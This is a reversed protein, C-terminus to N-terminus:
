REQEEPHDNEIITAEHPMGFQRLINAYNQRYPQIEDGKYRRRAAEYARQAHRVADLKKGFNAEARSLDFYAVEDGEWTFATAERALKLAEGFRASNYHAYSLVHLATGYQVQIEPNSPDLRFALRAYEVARLKFTHGDQRSAFDSMQRYIEAREQMGHTQEAADSFLGLVQEPDAEDSNMADLGAQWLVGARVNGRDFGVVRYLQAFRDSYRSGLGM